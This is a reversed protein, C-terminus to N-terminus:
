NKGFFFFYIFFLLIMINMELHCCTLLLSIYFTSVYHCNSVRWILRHEVNQWVCVCVCNSNPRAMHVSFYKRGHVERVSSLVFFFISWFNLLYFPHFYFLSGALCQLGFRNPVCFLAFNLWNKLSHGARKTDYVSYVRFRHCKFLWAGWLIKKADM